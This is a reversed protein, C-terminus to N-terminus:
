KEQTMVWNWQKQEHQHSQKCHKKCNSETKGIKSMKKNVSSKRNDNAVFKKADGNGDGIREGALGGCGDWGCCGQQMANYSKSGSFGPSSPNM